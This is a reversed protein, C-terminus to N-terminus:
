VPTYVIFRELIDDYRAHASETDYNGEILEKFLEQVEEITVPKM